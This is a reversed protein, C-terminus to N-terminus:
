QTQLFTGCGDYTRGDFTVAVATDLASGTLADRCERTDLVVRIRHGEADAEYVSPRPGRRNEPAPVRFVDGGGDAFVVQQQDTIELIWGTLGAARFDVGRRKADDWEAEAPVSACGAYTRSPTELRAESRRGRLTVAGDTYHIGSASPVQPLSLTRDPMFLWVRQPEFQAVFRYGDECRYIHTPSSSYADDGGPRCATGAAVAVLLVITWCLSRAALSGRAHRRHRVM